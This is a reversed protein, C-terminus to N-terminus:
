EEAEKPNAKNPKAKKAKAKLLTDFVSPKSSKQHGFEINM